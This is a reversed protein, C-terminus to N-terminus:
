AQRESIPRVNIFYGGNGKKGKPTRIADTFVGNCADCLRSVAAPVNTCGSKEEIEGTFLAIRAELFVTLLSVAEPPLAYQVVGDM